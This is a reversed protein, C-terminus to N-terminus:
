SLQAASSSVSNQAARSNISFNSPAANLRLSRFFIAFFNFSSLPKHFKFDNPRSYLLLVSPQLFWFPCPSTKRAFELRPCFLHVHNDSRLGITRLFTLYQSVDREEKRLRLEGCMRNSKSILPGTSLWQTFKKIMNKSLASRAFRSLYPSGIGPASFGFGSGEGIKEYRSRIHRRFFKDV